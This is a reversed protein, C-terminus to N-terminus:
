DVKVTIQTLPPSHQTPCLEQRWLLELASHCLWYRWISRLHRRLDEIPWKALCQLRCRNCRAPMLWWFVSPEIDPKFFLANLQSHHSSKWKPLLGRSQRHMQLFTKQIHFEYEGVTACRWNGANFPFIVLQSYFGLPGINDRKCWERWHGLRSHNSHRLTPSIQKGDGHMWRLKASRFNRKGCRVSVYTFRHCWRAYNKYERHSFKVNQGRM